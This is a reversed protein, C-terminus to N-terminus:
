LRARASLGFGPTRVKVSSNPQCSTPPAVAVTARVFKANTVHGATEGIAKGVRRGAESDVAYDPMSATMSARLDARLTDKEITMFAGYALLRSVRHNLKRCRYLKLADAQASFVKALM